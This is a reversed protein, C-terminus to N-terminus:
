GILCLVKCRHLSLSVDHVLTITRPAEGPPYVKAELRLNRIDLLLDSGAAPRPTRAM